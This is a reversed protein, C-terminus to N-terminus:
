VFHVVRRAALTELAVVSSRLPIIESLAAMIEGLSIIQNRLQWAKKKKEKEKKERVWSSLKLPYQARSMISSKVM